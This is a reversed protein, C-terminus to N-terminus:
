VRAELVFHSRLFYDLRKMLSVRRFVNLQWLRDVMPCKRAYFWFLDNWMFMMSIKMSTEIMSWISNSVSYRLLDPFIRRSMLIYLICDILETQVEYSYIHQMIPKFTKKQRKDDSKKETKETNMQSLMMRM